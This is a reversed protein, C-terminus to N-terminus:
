CSDEKIQTFVASSVPGNCRCYTIKLPFKLTYKIHVIGELSKAVSMKGETERRLPHGRQHLLQKSGGPCNGCARRFSLSIELKFTGNGIKWVCLFVTCTCYDMNILECDM